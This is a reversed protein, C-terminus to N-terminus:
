VLLVLFSLVNYQYQFFDIKFKRAPSACITITAAKWLNQKQFGHKIYFAAADKNDKHCGLVIPRIGFDKYVRAIAKELAKGGIGLGRYKRDIFFGMLRYFPQEKVEPPDTEWPIAEGLLIVGVPQEEAKILFTHGLCRHKVGYDTLEMITSLTDVFSDPVDDFQIQCAASYNDHTLEEFVIDM